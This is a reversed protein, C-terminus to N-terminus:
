VVVEEAAEKVYHVVMVVEVGAEVEWEHIKKEEEFGEHEVVVVVEEEEIHHEVEVVVQLGLVVEEVHHEVQLELVVVVAAEEKQHVLARFASEVVEEGEHLEEM